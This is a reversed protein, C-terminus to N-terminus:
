AHSVIVLLATCEAIVQVALAARRIRVAPAAVAIVLALAGVGAGWGFLWGPMGSACQEGYTLCRSTRESALALVGAGAAAPLFLVAALAAWLRTLDRPMATPAPPVSESANM